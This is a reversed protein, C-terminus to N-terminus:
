HHTRRAERLSMETARRPPRTEERPGLEPARVRPTPQPQFVDGSCGDDRKIHIRQRPCVTAPAVGNANRTLRGILAVMAVEPRSKGVAVDRDGTGRGTSSLPARIVRTSIWHCDEERSTFGLAACEAVDPDTPFRLTPISPPPRKQPRRSSRRTKTASM